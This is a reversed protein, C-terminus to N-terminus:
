MSTTHVSVQTYVEQIIIDRSQVTEVTPLLFQVCAKTVTTVTYHLAVVEFCGAERAEFLVLVTCM